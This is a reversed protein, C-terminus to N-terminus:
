SVKFTDLTAQMAVLGLLEIFNIDKGILPKATKNKNKEVSELAEALKTFTSFKPVM